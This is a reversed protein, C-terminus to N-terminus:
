VDSMGGGVGCVSYMVYASSMVCIHESLHWGLSSAVSVALAMLRTLRKSFSQSMCVLVSLNLISCSPFERLNLVIMFLLVICFVVVPVTSPNFKLVAPIWFLGVALAKMAFWM